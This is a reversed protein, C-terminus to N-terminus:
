TGHGDSKGSSIIAAVLNGVQTSLDRQGQKIDAVAGQMSRELAGMSDRLDDRRVFEKHTDNIRQHLNDVDAKSSVDSAKDGKHILDIIYRDRM